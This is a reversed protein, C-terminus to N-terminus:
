CSRRPSHAIRGHKQISNLHEIIDARHDLRALDEATEARDTQTEM